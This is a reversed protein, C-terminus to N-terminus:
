NVWELQGIAYYHWNVENVKARYVLPYNLLHACLKTLHWAENTNVALLKESVAQWDHDRGIDHVTRVQNLAGNEIWGDPFNWGWMWSHSSENWSAVVGYPAMSVRGEPSTFKFLGEAEFTDWRGAGGGIQYADYISQTTEGVQASAEKLIEAFTPDAETKHLSGCGPCAYWIGEGEYDGWRRNREQCHEIDM